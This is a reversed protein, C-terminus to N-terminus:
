ELVALVNMGDRIQEVPILNGAIKVGDLELSKVGCCKRNPNKVTIDIKKGRFKRVATFGKWKKPICPDIRLGDLEPRIGLIWQTATYYSWSATGSLWPIRSAGFKKSHRGHTSQCHVFPEIQRIEATNNQAAPMFARYYEYAQDGNGRLIEALVIWSQTHSFIGGNEKNSPNFLVARMVQVDIKDFPPNSLAVGYKTALLKKVADLSKNTQDETAVGSIVAWCQTNLYIRGEAADKTGYVTGDDGIAWIFWGGDWCVKKIKVDLAALEAAAWDAESGRGLRNCLDAYTKLGLRVQFTVFVSEGKYGLKLCDNWDASLGCPLGNMGTRQLNFELARRLHGLVSAEGQDAFPIVADLFAKDGTEAIYAPIVNFFWLSDDSRYMEPPTPPMSGPKHAWPRIEPQAGGTADQGSLMLGLRDRVLEPIMPTVGLMDQVTDRYGFGDRHDGTYILSCSRSWEFTVLANYANWVNVMHDFDVDPTVVQLNDILGHWHTKLKELEAEARKLTGFERKIRKGELGAKGIGLIVMIDKTEGPKLTIDSQIAGCINDSFGFSNSCKGAEVATSNDFSRYVGVFKERDLEYGAAKGGIQTMYWWRSQDRAAFDGPHFQLRSVSSASIMDKEWRAEAIYMVYQLNLLDNVFNWESAFECFSFVSLDRPKKTKNTVKLIWYEFEQDLPVFYTSEMHIGSYESDIVTYSTGFRCSSKYDKLSKGVPQWSSTWFDKSKRDRLYFYRGPQDLPISNYRFRLLRGSAPSHTFSYGGANNTHIGGYKRSGMYNSWPLPTDPRTVIYENSKDDFFGYQM